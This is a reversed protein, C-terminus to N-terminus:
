TCRVGLDASYNGAPFIGSSKQATLDFSVNTIGANLSLSLTGLTVGLLTAGSGQMQATFSVNNNGGSPAVTFNSPPTMQITIGLGVVTATVAGASGGSNLSSLRDANVNLALQGNSNVVLTCIGLASGPQVSAGLAVLGTALTLSWHRPM